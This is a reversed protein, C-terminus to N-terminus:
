KMAAFPAKIWCIDEELSRPLNLLLRLLKLRNELESPIYSCCRRRKDFALLSKKIKNGTKWSLEIQSLKYNKWVFSLLHSLVSWLEVLACVHGPM